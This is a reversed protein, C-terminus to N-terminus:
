MITELFLFIEWNGGRIGGNAGEWGITLCLICVFIYVCFFIYVCLYICTCFKYQLYIFVCNYIFLGRLKEELPDIQGRETWLM